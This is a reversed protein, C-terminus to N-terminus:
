QEVSWRWLGASAALSARGGSHSNWSLTMQNQALCPPISGVNPGLGRPESFFIAGVNAAPAWPTPTIGKQETAM